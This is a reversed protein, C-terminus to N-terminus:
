GAPPILRGTSASHRGPRRGDNARRTLGPRGSDAVDVAQDVDSDAQAGPDHVACQRREHVADGDLRAGRVAPQLLGGSRLVGLQRLHDPLGGGQLRGGDVRHHGRGADARDGGSGHHKGLHGHGGAAVVEADDAFEAPRQALVALGGFRGGHEARRHRHPRANRHNGRHAVLHQRHGDDRRADAHRRRVLLRHQPRAGNISTGTKGAIPSSNKAYWSSFVKASTGGTKTDGTLLTMATRAVQPTMQASCPTRKLAVPQGTEDTISLVPAPTCYTGDNAAAAYAGTLELPSTPVEGLTLTWQRQSEINAAYTKTGTGTSGPDVQNLGNLGLSTATNVIPSLDCQNFLQDEIGVFYTNSSKAIASALTETPTYAIGGALNQATGASCSKTNYSKHDTSNNGLAFTSTVGAKLAAVMTFYKYTSAADAIYGTFPDTALQGAAANLGYSKSSVMALVDGTKPDTVPLLATMPSTAPLEASVQKQAANQIGVNLTTVVKYGGESIQDATLKQTGELWDEVYKCFFGVNAVATPANYCDSTVPPPSGHGLVIPTAEYKTADAQSLDGATVMNQIVQNRRDKSAAPYQFPDYQTPARLVGVLTAAEPLTLNQVDKNFYTQAASEVSYSNEGFFAINLYNTLIESKTERQELDIACKADQIKRDLNQSIAAEQAAANGIAQYYRVQKVYQMTLTSGGQTDGGSTSFASRILSRMDVGHHQYFRRDETDVLAKQLFTPISTLAVPKRNQTFITALVTQGDSALFTTGQPPATEQLDCTSTLFKDAEHKAFLGAGGVYPLAIGAVLVSVVLLVGFLKLLTLGPNPRNSGPRPPGPPRTM